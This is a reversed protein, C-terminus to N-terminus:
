EASAGIGCGCTAVRISVRQRAEEVVGELSAHLRAESDVPCRCHRDRVDLTRGNARVVDRSSQRRDLLGRVM